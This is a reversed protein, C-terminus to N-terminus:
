RPGLYTLTDIWARSTGFQITGGPGLQYGFAAYITKTVPDWRNNYTNNNYSAIPELIGTCNPCTNQAIVKNTSPDIYLSLEISAFCCTPVGGVTVPIYYGGGFPWYLVASAPGSSHLEVGFNHPAFTPELQPHYFQGKMSYKGDYINQIGFVIFLNKLNDALKDGGSAGTISIGIAYQLNLNIGATNNITIDALTYRDGSKIVLEVPISWLSRPLSQIATGNASNYANVLATSNDAVTIHIDSSAPAAAELTVLLLGAVQQASASPRIIFDNKNNAGYPFGIGPNEIVLSKINSNDKICGTLASMM